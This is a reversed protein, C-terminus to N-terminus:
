GRSGQVSNLMLFGLVMVKLFHCLASVGYHMCYRQSVFSRSREYASTPLTLSRATTKSFGTRM